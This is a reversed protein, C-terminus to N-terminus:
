KEQQKTSERRRNRQYEAHKRNAEADWRRHAATGSIGVVAAIHRWSIGLSRANAVQQDLQSNLERIGQATAAISGLAAELRERRALEAGHVSQLRDAVQDSLSSRQLADDELVSPIISGEGTRPLLEIESAKWNITARIAEPGIDFHNRFELPIAILWLQILLGDVHESHPIVRLQTDSVVILTDLGQIRTTLASLLWPLGPEFEPQLTSLRFSLDLVLSTVHYSENRDILLTSEQAAVIDRHEGGRVPDRARGTEQRGSVSV